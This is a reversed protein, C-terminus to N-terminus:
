SERPKRLTRILDYVVTVGMALGMALCGAYLSWVPFGTAPGRSNQNIWGLQWAGDVMLYIAYLMLASCVVACTRQLPLPLRTVLVDVSLHQRQILALTAGFFIMFVFLYRAMEESWTIGSNFIYRLVVNGFVLIAMGALCLAMCLAMGKQLPTANNDSVAAEERTMFSGPLAGPEIRM